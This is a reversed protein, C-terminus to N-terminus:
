CIKFSLCVWSMSSMISQARTSIKINSNGAAQHNQVTKPTIEFDLGESIFTGAGTKAQAYGQAVLQEYVSKVTIRSVGLEMALERSSPLKQKPALAGEHILRRLSADIQQYIPVRSCKIL